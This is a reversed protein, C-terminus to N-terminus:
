KEILKLIENVIDKVSKKSTYIHAGNKITCEYFWDYWRKVEHKKMPKSIIHGKRTKCRLYSEKLSIHLNVLHFESNSKRAADRFLKIKDNAKPGGYVGECIVSIRKSLYNTISPMIFRIKNFISKPFNVFKVGIILADANIVVVNSKMKEALKLSITSKGSGPPGRILILKTM